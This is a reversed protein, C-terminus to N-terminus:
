FLVLFLQSVSYYYFDMFMCFSGRERRRGGEREEEKGRKRRGKYKKGM